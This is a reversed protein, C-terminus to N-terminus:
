TEEDAVDDEFEPYGFDASTAAGSEIFLVGQHFRNVESLHFQATLSLAHLAQARKMSRYESGESLISEVSVLGSTFELITEALKTVDVDSPLSEINLSIADAASARVEVKPM